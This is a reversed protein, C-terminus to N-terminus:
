FFSLENGVKWKTEDTAIFNIQMDNFPFNLKINRFPLFNALKHQNLLLFQKLLDTVCNILVFM